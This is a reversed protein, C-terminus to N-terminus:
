KGSFFSYIGYLVAIFGAVCLIGYGTGLCWGIIELCAEEGIGDVLIFLFMLLVISM